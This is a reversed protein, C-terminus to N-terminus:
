TITLPEHNLLLIKFDEVIDGGGFANWKIERKVVQLKLYSFLTDFVESRIKESNVGKITSLDIFERVEKKQDLSLIEFVTEKNPSHAMRPGFLEREVEEQFARFGYCMLEEPNKIFIASQDHHSKITMEYDIVMHMGRVIIAQSEGQESLYKMEKLFDPFDLTKDYLSAM